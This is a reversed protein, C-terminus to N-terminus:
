PWAAVPGAGRAPVAVGVKCVLGPTLDQPHALVISTHPELTFSGGDASKQVKPYAQRLLAAADGCDDAAAQASWLSAATLGLFIIRLLTRM